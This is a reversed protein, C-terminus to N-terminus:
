KLGYTRAVRYLWRADFIARKGPEPAYAIPIDANEGTHTFIDGLLVMKSKVTVSERLLVKAKRGAVEIEAKAARASRASSKGAAMAGTPMLLAAAVLTFILKKM